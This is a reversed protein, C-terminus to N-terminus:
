PCIGAVGTKLVPQVFCDAFVSVKTYVGLSSPSCEQDLAWSVIGIQYTTHNYDLLLPGGSDGWCHAADTQGACVMGQTVDHQKCNFVVNVHASRLEQSLAGLPVTQGWGSVVADFNGAAIMNAETAPDALPIIFIGDPAGEIRLMAIDDHKPAGPYYNPYCVVNDRMAGASGDPIQQITLLNGGQSLNVSGSFVRLAGNTPINCVCHAATLVWKSSLLTGSCTSFQPSSALVLAVQYPFEGQKADTGGVVWIRQATAALDLETAARQALRRAQAREAPTAARDAQADAERQVAAVQALAAATVTDLSQARNALGFLLLM